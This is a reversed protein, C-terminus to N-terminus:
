RSAVIETARVQAALKDLVGNVFKHGDSGGFTKALEVAENIVVRYPIEPHQALEFAGLVLVSYEVPSLEELKRDLLPAIQEGLAEHQAIAGHLLQSFFETDYRGLSKEERTAKEILAASKGSLRWEYIGQMALERARHRQSKAPNSKQVDNM